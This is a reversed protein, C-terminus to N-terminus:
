ETPCSQIPVQTLIYQYNRVIKCYKASLIVSININGDENFEDWKMVKYFSALM